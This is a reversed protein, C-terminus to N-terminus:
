PLKRSMRLFHLTHRSLPAQHSRQLIPYEQTATGNAVIAAEFARPPPGKSIKKGKYVKAVEEDLLKDGKQCIELIKEGEICWGTRM